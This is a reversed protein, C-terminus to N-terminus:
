IIQEVDRLLYSTRGPNLRPETWYGSGVGGDGDERVM